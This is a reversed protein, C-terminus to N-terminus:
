CKASTIRTHNFFFLRQFITAPDTEFYFSRPLPHGPSRSISIQRQAEQSHLSRCENSPDERGYRYSFEGAKKGTWGM